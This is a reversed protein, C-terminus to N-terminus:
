FLILNNLYRVPVSLHCSVTDSDPDSNANLVIDAFENESPVKAKYFSEILRISQSKNYNNNNNDDDNNNNNNNNNNNDNKKEDNEKDNKNKESRYSPPPPAFLLRRNRGNSSKRLQNSASNISNGCSIEPLFQLNHM